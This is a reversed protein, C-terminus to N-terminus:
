QLFPLTISEGPTLRVLGGAAITRVVGDTSVRVPTTDLGDARTSNYVQVVLTGGGRNIIDEAKSWHFHMPTIQNEQVVLIKEAYLKGQVRRRQHAM